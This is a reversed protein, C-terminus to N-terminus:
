DGYLREEADNAVAKLAHRYETIYYDLDGVIMNLFDDITETHPEGFIVQSKPDGILFQKLIHEKLYIWAEFDTPTEVVDVCFEFAGYLTHEYIGTRYTTTVANNALPKLSM